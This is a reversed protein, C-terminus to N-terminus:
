SNVLWQPSGGSVAPDRHLYFPPRWLLGLQQGCGEFPRHVTPSNLLVLFYHLTVLTEEQLNGHCSVWKKKLMM